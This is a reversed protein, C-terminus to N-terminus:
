VCRVGGGRVRGGSVAGDETPMIGAAGGAAGSRPPTHVNAIFPGAAAALQIQPGGGAGPSTVAM